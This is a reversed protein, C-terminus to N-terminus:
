INSIVYRRINQDFANIPRRTGGSHSASFQLQHLPGCYVAKEPTFTNILLKNVTNSGIIIYLPNSSQIHNEKHFVTYKFSNELTRFM